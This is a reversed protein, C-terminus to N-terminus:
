AQRLVPRASDINFCVVPALRDIHHHNAGMKEKVQKKTCFRRKGIQKKTCNQVKGVQKKTCLKNYPTFSGM